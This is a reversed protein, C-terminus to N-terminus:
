LIIRGVIQAVTEFGSNLVEFSNSIVLKIMKEPAIEPADSIMRVIKAIIKRSYSCPSLSVWM